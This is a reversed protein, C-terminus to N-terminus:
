LAKVQDLVAQAHGPVSVSRWEQRLIGAGDILFTSRVIGRVMKGYMNKDRIVQFLNCAVEEADCLLPFPLSLKTKFREHSALSDRSIGVVTCKHKRFEPYLDRFQMSEDTCGPTHDKPYFYIVVPAGKMASLRFAQNGTAPLEFDSVPQGLTM